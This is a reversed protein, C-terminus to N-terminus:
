NKESRSIKKTCINYIFDFRMKHEPNKEGFITDKVFYQPSFFYQVAPCAVFSWTACVCRM